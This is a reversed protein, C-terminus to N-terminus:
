RKPLLRKEDRQCGFHLHREDDDTITKPGRERPFSRLFRHEEWQRPYFNSFVFHVFHGFALPAIVPLRCHSHLMHLHTASHGVSANKPDYDFRLPSRLRLLERCETAYFDILDLLPEERLEDTPIDFPCPYYCLRHGQLTTGRFDFSCQILAGDFLIAIYAQNQICQCYEAISAYPNVNGGGSVARWTVRVRAGIREQTIPNVAIAVGNNILLETFNRLESEARNTTM